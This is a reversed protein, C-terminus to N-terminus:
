SIIFEVTLRLFCNLKIEIGKLSRSFWVIELPCNSRFQISKVLFFRVVFKLFGLFTPLKLRRALQYFHSFCICFKTFLIEILVFFAFMPSFSIFFVDSSILIYNAFSSLHFFIVLDFQFFSTLELSCLFILTPCTLISSFLLRPRSLRAM